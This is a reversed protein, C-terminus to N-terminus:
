LPLEGQNNVVNDDVVLERGGGERMDFVELATASPVISVPLAGARLLAEKGM